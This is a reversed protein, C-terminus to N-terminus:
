ALARTVYRGGPLSTMAPSITVVLKGSFCYRGPRGGAPADGPRARSLRRGRRANRAANAALAERM